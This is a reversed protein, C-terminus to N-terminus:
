AQVVVAALCPVGAWPRRRIDPSPWNAVRVAPRRRAGESADLLRALGAAWRRPRRAMSWSARRANIVAEVAGGSRGSMVPLGALAAEAFV